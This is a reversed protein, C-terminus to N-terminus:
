GGGWGGQLRLGLQLAEGEEQPLALDYPQVRRQRMERQTCALPATHSCLPLALSLSLACRSLKHPVRHSQKLTILLQQPLM